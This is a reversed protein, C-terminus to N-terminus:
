KMNIKVASYVLTTIKTFKSNESQVHTVQLIVKPIPFCKRIIFKADYLHLVHFYSIFLSM